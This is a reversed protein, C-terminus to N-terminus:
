TAVRAVSDHVLLSSVSRVEEGLGRIAHRAEATESSTRKAAVAAAEGM